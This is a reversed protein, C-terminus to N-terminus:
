AASTLLQRLKLALDRRRYPKRLLHVGPDLRGDHVIAEHNYGSTFLVKLGPRLKAAGDALQRGGMGPMVVDTFLLDVPAGSQLIEMAALGNSASLVQYGLARLLKEAHQRVLEDDEVLLVTETGTPEEAAESDRQVETESAMSRPLLITFSTGQGIESEIAIHGDSQKVFGYVMSLGLGTGKGVGKTSFFPDFARAIVEPTMGSGTDSVSVRVYEGPAAEGDRDTYAADLTTNATAITLRGGQPMADRANIALNLLASELQVPDVSAHWLESGQALAIQVQAGLTRRLLGEMGSILKNLDLAQPELAQRRAFALLSKTLDAGREAATRTMEVLERLSPNDRLDDVLIDSNGLIVTLLNNFDHALGGTLQGVAEMKQSQRLQAETRKQQTVDIAVIGVGITDDRISVPYTSVLWHRIGAEAVEFSLAINLNAVKTELSSRYYADIRDGLAPILERVPRGVQAEATAGIAAALAENIRVITASCDVFAFGIPATSQLTDLLALLEDSRQQSEALRTESAHIRRQLACHEIALRIAHEIDAPAISSKSIYNQAGERIASVAVRENGQGTLMVVPIFPDAHHIRKMVEIGNRGPLSYDLLVCGPASDAISALGQEGNAAETVQYREAASKQLLRKCTDRDDENDDIILVRIAEGM